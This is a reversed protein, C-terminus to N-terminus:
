IFRFFLCLFLLSLFVMPFSFAFCVVSFFAGTWGGSIFLHIPYIHFSFLYPFNGRLLYLHNCSFHVCFLHAFKKVQEGEPTNICESLSSMLAPLIKGLHKTLAEGAVSSLLSLAKTNIPPTILQMVFAFSFPFFLLFFVDINKYRHSKTVQGTCRTCKM